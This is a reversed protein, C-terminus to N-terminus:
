PNEEKTEKDEKKEETEVGEKEDKPPPPSVKVVNKETTEDTDPQKGEKKEETEVGEKEDKPPPPSVKVVNKETTEDTDPQKGEKKEETEVGEKEDKPPPPSVKVVNKETTEDTDPQKGEKKEETEVGEKQDKPPPPSVKVVNKETTEASAPSTGEVVTTPAERRAGQNLSSSPQTPLVPGDAASKKEGRPQQRIGVSLEGTSAGPDATNLLSWFTKETDPKSPSYLLLPTTGLLTYQFNELAPLSQLLDDDLNLQMVTVRIGAQQSRLPLVVEQNIDCGYVHESVEKVVCSKTRQRRARVLDQANENQYHVVCFIKKPVKDDTFALVNKLEGLSVVLEFNADDAPPVGSRFATVIQDTLMQVMKKAGLLLTPPPEQVAPTEQPAPSDARVSHRAEEVFPPQATEEVDEGKKNGDRRSNEFPDTIARAAKFADRLSETALPSHSADSDVATKARHPVPRSNLGGSSAPVSKTLSAAHSTASDQQSASHRVLRSESPSAAEPGKSVKVSGAPDEGDENAPSSVSSSPPEPSPVVAEDGRNALSSVSSSPPEPLPVVEESKGVAGFGASIKAAPALSDPEVTPAVFSVRMSQLRSATTSSVSKKLSSTSELEKRPSESGTLSASTLPHSSLKRVFDGASPKASVSLSVSSPLRTSQRPSSPSPSAMSPPAAVSVTVASEQAKPLSSVLSVPTPLQARSTLFSTQSTSVSNGLQKRSISPDLSVKAKPAPAADAVSRSVSASVTRQPSCLRSCSSLSSSFAPSLPACADRERRFSTDMLRLFSRARNLPSQPDKDGPLLSRSPAATPVPDSTDTRLSGPLLAAVPPLPPPSSSGPLARGPRGFEWGGPKHKWAETQRAREALLHGKLFQLDQISLDAQSKLAKKRTSIDESDLEGADESEDAEKMQLSDLSQLARRLSLYGGLRARSVGSASSSQLYAELVHVRELSERLDEDERLALRQEASLEEATAVVPLGMFHLTKECGVADPLRAHVSTCQDDALTQSTEAYLAGGARGRGAADRRELGLKPAKGRNELVESFAGSQRKQVPSVDFGGSSTCIGSMVPSPSPLSRDGSNRAEGTVVNETTETWAKSSRVPKPTDGRRGAGPSEGEPRRQGESDEGDGAPTLPEKVRISRILPPAALRLCGENQGELEGDDQLAQLRLLRATKEVRGEPAAKASSLCASVSLPTTPAHAPKTQICLPPCVTLPSGYSRSLRQKGFVPYSGDSCGVALPSKEAAKDLDLADQLSTEVTSLWGQYAEDTRRNRSSRERAEHRDELDQLLAGIHACVRGLAPDTERVFKLEELVLRGLAVAAKETEEEREDAEGGEGWVNAGRLAGELPDNVGAPRAASRAERRRLVNELEVCVAKSLNLLSAAATEAESDEKERLFRVFCSGAGASDVGSGDAERSRGWAEDEDAGDSEWCIDPPSSTGSSDTSDDTQMSKGRVDQFRSPERFKLRGEESFHRSGSANVIDVDTESHSGPIQRGQGKRGKPGALRQMTKMSRLTSLSRVQTPLRKAPERTGTESDTKMTAARSLLRRSLLSRSPPLEPDNFDQRAKTGGRQLGSRTERFQPAQSAFRLLEREKEGGTRGGARTPLRQAQTPLRQAQTPLRQAQSPLRQAQSPLRQAQSPLASIGRLNEEEGGARMPQRRPLPSGGVPRSVSPLRDPGGEEGEKDIDVFRSTLRRALPAEQRGLPSTLFRPIRPRAGETGRFSARSSARNAAEAFELEDADRTDLRSQSFRSSDGPMATPLEPPQLSAFSSPFPSRGPSASKALRSRHERPSQRRGYLPEDFRTRCAFNGCVQASDYYALSRPAQAKLLAESSSPFHLLRGGSPPTCKLLSRGNGVKVSVHSRGTVRERRHYLGPIGPLLPRTEAPRGPANFAILSYPMSQTAGTAAEEEPNHTIRQLLVRKEEEFALGEGHFARALRLPSASPRNLAIPRM